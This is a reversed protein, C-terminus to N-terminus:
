LVQAGICICARSHTCGCFTYYLIYFYIIYNYCIYLIMKFTYALNIKKGAQRKDMRENKRKTKWPLTERQQGPQEPVQKASRSPRSGLFREVGTEWTSPNFIYIVMGPERKKILSQRQPMKNYYYSISDICSTNYFYKAFHSQWSNSVWSSFPKVSLTEPQMFYICDLNTMHTRTCTHTHQTHIHKHPTKLIM